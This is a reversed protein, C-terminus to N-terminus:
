QKEKQKNMLSFVIVNWSFSGVENLKNKLQTWLLYTNWFSASGAKDTCTDDNEEVWVQCHIMRRM